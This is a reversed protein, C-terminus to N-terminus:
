DKARAFVGALVGAVLNIISIVWLSAGVSISGMTKVVEKGGADDIMEARIGFNAVLALISVVVLSLLAVTNIKALVSPMRVIRLNSLVQLIAMVILIVALVVLIWAFIRYWTVAAYDWNGVDKNTLLKWGSWKETTTMGMFDIKVIIGPISLFVLTLIGGLASCIAGIWKKM